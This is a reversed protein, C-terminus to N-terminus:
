ILQRVQMIVGISRIAGSGNSRYIRTRMSPTLPEFGRLEVLFRLDYAQQDKRHIAAFIM